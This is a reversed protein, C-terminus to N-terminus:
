MHVRRTYVWWEIMLVGLAVLALWWWWELRRKGAANGQDTTDTPVAAPIKDSPLVNSEVPDLINVALKEYGPIAPETSYLGVKEMVPLVFEGADTVPLEKKGDPGTLTVSKLNIDAQQLKSRPIRVVEGPRLSQRVDMTQGVALYQMAQHLFMPFSPKLPWNSQMVDFAVILHTAKPARDLVILPGKLGDLLVERDLPVNLKLAKATYLRGLGLNELIPHDRKWDLVGVDDLVIANGSGPPATPGEDTALRTKTGDPVVGFWIYNGIEPLFKPKYNDFIIVDYNTPKKAEYDAPQTVDPSKIALSQVARQLFYNGDTVLLLSLEKPPPVVVNASNDAALVDDKTKLHELRIVAARTLDLKFDVSDDARRSGPKAEWDQRQKETWREPYLFVEDARATSIDIKEGDISLQVPVALPETGYNALRAFVQVQTPREFNRKASLAVVAINGSQGSGIKQYTVNGKVAADDPNLLRGDTYVRIDPPEVNARLQEPNFNVQADALQYALKIDSPRDTQKIRDIAQKLLLPDATFPQVPDAKDHFAIVMATGGSPMSDVLEKAQRKAEELRTKGEQDLAAMSASCDILIVTTKGPPPTYNSVPRMYALLLLLLLILQLLLLLNRRLKQFPANVQLDQIAKRWLLTSGVAVEKRRLKLFYLVLLAPIVLAGAILGAQWSTFTPFWSM